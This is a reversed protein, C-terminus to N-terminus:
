EGSHESSSFARSNMGLTRLVSSSSLSLRSFHFLYRVFDDSNKSARSFLFFPKFVSFLAHCHLYERSQAPTSEHALQLFARAGSPCEWYSRAVLASSSAGQLGDNDKREKEKEKGEQKAITTRKQTNFLVSLDLINCDEPLFCSTEHVRTM